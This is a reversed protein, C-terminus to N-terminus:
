ASIPKTECKLIHRLFKRLIFRYRALISAPMFCHPKETEAADPYVLKLFRHYTVQLLSDHISCFLSEM